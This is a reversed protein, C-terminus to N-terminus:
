REWRRWRRYARGDSLALGIGQRYDAGPQREPGGVYYLRFSGDDMPVVCPTGVAQSDFRGSGTPSPALVAGGTEDGYEKSWRLGDPSTAVGIGYYNAFNSGEYLMLWGGQYPLVSRCSVGREDFRGREGNALIEGRKEWHLGDGSVALGIRAGRTPHLGHYYLRWEDHALRVVRAYTASLEDFAGPGGLPLVAGRYPGVLKTWQRGDRSIACGIHYPIGIRDVGDWTTTSWDGGLYWMWYLGDLKLVCTAGVHSTDFREPNTSPELVAGMTLPGRVREWHVGDASIALGTRGDSGAIARNWHRDRGYYWMKWAGDEERLVQPSSVSLSDWWGEPGPGFILGPDTV